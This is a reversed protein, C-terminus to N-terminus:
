IVLPKSSDKEDSSSKRSCRKGWDGAQPLFLFAFRGVSVKRPKKETAGSEGESGM